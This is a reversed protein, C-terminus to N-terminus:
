RGVTVKVRVSTGGLDTDGFAASVGGAGVADPVTAWVVEGALGVFRSLKVEGGGLMHYGSFRDRVDEGAASFDSSENYASSNVGAGVYPIFRSSLGRFRWGGTVEIPTLTVHLPIGLKFTQGGSRFVRQGNDKKFRWAGVEVFLGGWPLGVSVGGGFTTGRSTGFVADFTDAARFTTAGVLGYGGIEIGRSQGSAPALLQRGASDRPEAASQAYAAPAELVLALIVTSCSRLTPRRM